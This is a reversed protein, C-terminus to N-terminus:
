NLSSFDMCVVEQFISSTTVSILYLICTYRIFYNIKKKCFVWVWVFCLCVLWLFLFLIFCFWGFFEWMVLKTGDEQESNNIYEAQSLLCIAFKLPEPLKRIM